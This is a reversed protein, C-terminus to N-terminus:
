SVFIRIVQAMDCCLTPNKKMAAAMYESPFNAKLYATQYALLTYCVAHAKNFAYESFSGWDDWIKNIVKEDYGNAQCGTIFQKKLINMRDILKKGMARRLEDSEFPMFGALDRSLHMMQEQFLTMGCTDKLRKEMIPIDYIIQKRGHKRAIFESSIFKVTDQRYLTYIAILDDFKTPRLERLYKKVEDLDFLFVGTTEGKGFLEYTPTDYLSIADIDLEIGHRQRINALTERIISLAECGIFDFLKSGVDSRATSFNVNAAVWEQGYKETIWQLAQERGDEDFETDIDLMSIRSPTLFREFLLDYKIPDINTIRLCYSVISGAASGCGPGVFIRMNRMAAIIDQLILFYNACNTKKITELEYDIRERVEEDFINGYRKEAGQYTLHRLYADANGFDEPLPFDPLIPTSNINSSQTM